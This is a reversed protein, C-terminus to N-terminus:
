RTGLVDYSKYPEANGANPMWSVPHSTSNWAALVADRNTFKTGPKLNTKMLNRIDEAGIM